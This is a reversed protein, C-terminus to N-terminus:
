QEKVVSPVHCVHTKCYVMLLIHCKLPKSSHKVGDTDLIRLKSGVRTGGSALTIWLVYKVVEYLENVRDKTSLTMNNYYKQKRIGWRGQIHVWNLNIRRRCTVLRLGAMNPM